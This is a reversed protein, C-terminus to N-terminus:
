ARARKKKRPKHPIYRGMLIANTVERSLTEDLMRRVKSQPVGLRIAAQAKRSLDEFSEQRSQEAEAKFREEEEPAKKTQRNMAEAADSIEFSFRSVDYGLSKEVDFDYRRFGTAAAALEPGFGKEKGREFSAMFGPQVQKKIYAKKDDIPAGREDEGVSLDRALQALPSWGFFAEGEEEAWAAMAEDADGGAVVRMLPDTFSTFPDVDSLDLYRGKTENGFWLMRSNKDWPPVFQRRDEDEDADIGNLMNVAYAAAPTVSAAILQGVARRAGMARVKPNDSKLEQAILRLRNGTTRVIEAKFAFFQGLIPQRRFLKMAKSMRATTPFLDRVRDSALAEAEAASYGAKKLAAEEAYFFNVKPANDAAEFAREIGGKAKKFINHDPQVMEEPTKKLGARLDQWESTSIGEGVVGLRILRKQEDLGGKGLALGWDKKRFVNPLHGNAV